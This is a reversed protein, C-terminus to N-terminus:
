RTWDSSPMIIPHENLPQDVHQLHWTYLGEATTYSTIILTVNPFILDPFDGNNDYIIIYLSVESLPGESIPVSSERCSVLSMERPGLYKSERYNVVEM